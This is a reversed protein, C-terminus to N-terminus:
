VQHNEAESSASVPLKALADSEDEAFELVDTLGATRLCCKVMFRVNYLILRRDWGHLLARLTMLNSLESSTLIERLSCDIIVNVDSRNSVMENLAALEHGFEPETPLVVTLIGEATQRISM